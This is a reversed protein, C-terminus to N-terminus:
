KILYDDFYQMIKTNLHIRDKAGVGHEALPYVFYDLQINQSICESLFSLTNQWVVTNDMAGHILLLKGKLNKLSNITSSKEYGEPNEQPMDMYREGYMVEYYKWDTVAGGAVGAKFIDPYHTMLSITMFGGYSWGSVGIRDMDAYGQKKLYEIGKIQDAMENEGLHRHIINEFATGRNSTGRNDVTFIIYGKQALYYDFLSAGALWTDTILQSHPGGYVYLIVPYKKAPNFDPPKIMRCFINTTDDAAKITFISAEGLMYNKFPNEASFLNRVLKGETSLLDIIKPNGTSSNINIMYKGTHNVLVNNNGKTFTLKQLKGSGINVKYIQREIPSDKTTRIFLNKEKIDFGAIDTVEWDGRTLQKILIGNVDYLYLHRFGDRSSYWILQDPKTKLFLVADQPEIYKDNKEEFLTNVLKGTLVDYRNLKLCNQERNLIAIFIYKGDPSWTICTLYQDVPQGTEMFVTKRTNINYIGLKVVENKSGAMPYRINKEMAVPKTIDVLPYFSVQSEDKRYFALKNGDPSWFIGSNIGFENRSVIKGNVIGPESDKTIQTTKGTSDSIFLNDGKTFAYYDKSSAIYNEGDEDLRLVKKIKKDPLIFVLEYEITRFQFANNTKWSIVPFSKLDEIGNEKLVQNLDSLTLVVITTTDKINGQVLKDNKVWTFVDM